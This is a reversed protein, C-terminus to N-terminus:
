SRYGSSSARLTRIRCIRDPVARFLRTDACRTALPPSLRRTGDGKGGVQIAVEIGKDRLQTALWGYWNSDMIRVCGNGPVIVVKARELGGSKSEGASEEAM